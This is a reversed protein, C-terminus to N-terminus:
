DPRLNYCVVSEVLRFGESEYLRLANHNEGNVSLVVPCFGKDLLFNFGYRFLSRGLGSGQYQPIIGFGMIEGQTLDDLDKALSITGVPIEDKKLLCIGGELNSQDEFWSLVEEGTSPAHGALHKFAANLCDAYQAAGELDDPELSHVVFGDPFDPAPLAPGEHELVFSYREVQFGLEELVAATEKRVEPIFLFVSAVDKMHPRIAELLESYAELNGSRSHFISFRAKDIKLFRSTKMLSVAGIVVDDELLLFSPHESSIQFDRGPIYSSDHEEAFSRCYDYFQAQNNESVPKIERAM